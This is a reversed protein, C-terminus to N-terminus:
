GDIQLSLGLTEPLGADGPWGDGQAQIDAKESAM